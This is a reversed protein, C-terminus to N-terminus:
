PFFISISNEAEKKEGRDNTYAEATKEAKMAARLAEPPGTKVPGNSM